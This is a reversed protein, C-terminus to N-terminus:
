EMAGRALEVLKGTPQGRELAVVLCCLLWAQRELDDTQWGCCRLCLLWGSISGIIFCVAGLGWYWLM